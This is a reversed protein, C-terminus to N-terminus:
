AEAARAYLWSIERAWLSPDPTELIMPIGDFRSDRVLRAFFAEGITGLGISEHRDLRSGLDKKDDNLHMGRLYRLGVISDFEDWVKNYGEESALDYGASFAHCTDICVGVRDKQEVKDIIGALHSFDYGLNSGQGAANEIVATVGEVKELCYNLSDAIVAICEEESIINLHSGAHFNLLKLGLRRCNDLESVFSKRSLFLKRKDPSGLNILLNSHPLIMDSTYGADQCNTIFANADEPSIEDAFWKNKAGFMFAFAGAGLDRALMPDYALGDHSDVHVGIYKNSYIM